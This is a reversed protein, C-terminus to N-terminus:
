KEHSVALFIATARQDMCTESSVKSCHLHHELAVGRNQVRTRGSGLVM